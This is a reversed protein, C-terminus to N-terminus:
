AMSCRLFSRRTLWMCRAELRCSRSSGSCSSWGRRTRAQTKRRWATVRGNGVYAGASVVVACGAVVVGQAVAAPVRKMAAFAEGCAVGVAIALFASPGYFYRPVVGLVLGSYPLVSVYFALLVAALVWRRLLVALPFAAILLAGGARELVSHWASTSDSFPFLGLKLYYWAQGPTSSSLEFVANVSMPQTFARTRMAVYVAALVVYPLLPLYSRWQRWRERRQVLVLWGGMAAVEVFASEHFGIAGVLLVLAAAYGPGARKGADSREVARMFLLWAGLGLPVSISNVSSIWAVAEFGAPHVAFFVAALGAAMARRTLRWAVLWVLVVTGLHIAINLVHYAVPHGGFLRETGQFM